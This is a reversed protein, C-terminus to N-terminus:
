LADELWGDWGAVVTASKNLSVEMAIIEGESFAIPSVVNISSSADQAAIAVETFFLGQEAFSSGGVRTSILRLRSRTNGSGSVSGGYIVEIMVRKGRPVRRIASQTVRGDVPIRNYTIPVSDTSQIDIDGDAALGSGVDSRMHAFQVFRIDTAVTAVPNTGDLTVVESQRDLNGDLYFIEISNIGTGGNGDQSSSSVVQMQIGSEPPVKPDPDDDIPWVLHNTRAGATVLEGFAPFKVAGKLQGRAARIPAAIAQLEDQM